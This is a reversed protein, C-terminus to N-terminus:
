SYRRNSHLATMSFTITEWAYFADDFFISNFGPLSKSSIDQNIKDM